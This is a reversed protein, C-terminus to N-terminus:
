SRLEPPQALLAKLEALAVAAEAYELRAMKGMMDELPAQCRAPLPTHRLRDAAERARLNRRVLLTELETITELAPVEQAAPAPLGASTPEQPASGEAKALEANALLSRIAACTEALRPQLGALAAEVAGGGDGLAREVAAAEASIGDIGLTASTGKLTHALRRAEDPQSHALLERLQGASDAWEEIFRGLLRHYLPLNNGVRRLGAATDIPPLPPAPARPRVWRLLTAFLKAPEVPKGVHDNMGAARCKDQDEESVHATLAIIPLQGRNPDRRIARAAAFGDMDPMQLDMLVADFPPEDALARDVAVNGRDTVVAEAGVSSLLERAVQQNIANDEVVLIRAGRLSVPADVAPLTASTGSALGFRVSFSFSSGRGPQSEVQLQGGMAAVLQQSIALGLGTGGFRRTTSGDAQVFPEFMSCVREPAIGIGTDRVTFRVEIKDGAPTSSSPGEVPEIEVAVGGVTTFKVANDVLNTLVQGLRVPDGRLRQPLRPDVRCVLDLGKERAALGLVNSFAQVVDDLSFAISEITLRGAEIKSFDLVNNVVDLLMRVSAQINAVHAALPPSLPAAALLHGLGVIANLPTRIEHSMNALFQAKAQAAALAAERARILEERIQYHGTMDRLVGEIAIPEGAADRVLRVHAEAIVESGDRRRLTSKHGHVVGHAALGQRLRVRDTPDTLVDGEMNKGVVERVDGYGLMRAMAPNVLLVEGPMNALLYGDQMNEFINRFKEENARVVRDSRQKWVNYSLLVAGLLLTVALGWTLWLARLSPSIWQALDGQGLVTWASDPVAGVITASTAVEDPDARRARDLARAVDSGAGGREIWAANALLRKPRLAIIEAGAPMLLMLEADNLQAPALWLVAPVIGRLDVELVLAGVLEVAAVGEELLLPAVVHLHAPGTAPRGPDPVVPALQVRQTRLAAEIASRLGPTRADIPPGFTLLPAGERDLALAADYGQSRALSELHRGATVFAPSTVRAQAPLAAAAAIIPDRSALLADSRRESLWRGLESARFEVVARLYRNIGRHIEASQRIALGAGVVGVAVALALLIALVRMARRPGDPRDKRNWPPLLAALEHQPGKPV